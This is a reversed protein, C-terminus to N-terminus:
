RLVEFSDIPQALGNYDFVGARGPTRLSSPSSDVFRIVQVGDLQVVVTVPGNGTASVSLVHAGSPFVPGEALYAYAYNDRRALRIRGDPSVYAAYHDRDPVSPNARVTAGAYTARIPTSLRVAAVADLPASGTWFAYSQPSTGTAAAGTAVFAGRQVLWSAGLGGARNFDDSFLPTAATSISFVGDSVDNLSPDRVDSIRVLAATTSVAPVTWLFMGSNPISAVIPQWTSGGDPSLELRINPVVGRTSWHMLRTQGSTLSDGGNPSVLGLRPIVEVGELFRVLAEIFFYDGYVLGVDIEQNAPLHGVGHLLVALTTNPALYTPSALSALMGAAAERYRGKNVVDPELAALELLASATIAAASSDKFQQPADFDWNPILDSPLRSLYYDATRRATALMRADRTYRYMMTFGYIAWAQGRSWTSGNSYGQFTEKFRVAGTVPNLDAIHFTSGDPRVLERATVLAHSIAMDRLEPRGGNEAAWMLMELSILTDIVLPLRWRPNWDCCSLVGAVPRYRAALSEAGIMLVDRYYPDGTLRYANGFSYFLKPGLDHTLRNTKQLELNRTWGDAPNGYREEGTRRFLYWLSGPFFGQTWGILDTNPVTTWSGDPRTSKPYQTLTTVVATRRLKEGAVELASIASEEDFPPPTPASISFSDIPAAQGNYDFIGALGSKLSTAEADSVRLLERGDVSVSLIVPNTGATRLALTHTGAPLRPATALLKYAWGNRRSLGLSRDPAIYAAYHDRAPAGPTARATVGVYTSGSAPGVIASVVAENPPAGAWFAYSSPSTGTAAAGNTAFDGYAVRWLSGLGTSRNFEDAFVPAGKAPSTAGVCLVLGLAAGCATQRFSTVSGM